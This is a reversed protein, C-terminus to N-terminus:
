SLSHKFHTYLQIKWQATGSFFEFINWKTKLNQNETIKKLELEVTVTSITNRM